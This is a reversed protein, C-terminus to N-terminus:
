ECRGVGDMVYAARRGASVPVCSPLTDCVVKECVVSQMGSM